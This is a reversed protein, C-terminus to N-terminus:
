AHTNGTHVDRKSLLLSSQRIVETDVGRTPPGCKQKLYKIALEIEYTGLDPDTICDGIFERAM